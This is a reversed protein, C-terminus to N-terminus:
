QIKKKVDLSPKKVSLKTNKVESKPISKGASETSRSVSLNKQNPTKVNSQFKKGLSKQDSIKVLKENKKSGKVVVIKKNKAEIKKTSQKQQAKKSVPKGAVGKYLQRRTGM